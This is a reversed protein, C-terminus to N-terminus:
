NPEELFSNFGKKMLTSMTNEAVERKLTSGVLISYGDKYKFISPTIGFKRLKEVDSKTDTSKEYIGVFIKYFPSNM